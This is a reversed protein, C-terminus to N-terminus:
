LSKNNKMEQIEIRMEQCLVKLDQLNQRTRKGAQANEKEYFKVTDTEMMEVLDKIKQYLEM